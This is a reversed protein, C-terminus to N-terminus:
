NGGPGAATRRWAFYGDLVKLQEIHPVSVAQSPDNLDMVQQNAETFAPWNPLGGGNPNGTKAFNTWYSSVEETVKRDSDGAPM